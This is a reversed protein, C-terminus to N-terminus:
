PSVPLGSFATLTPDPEAADLSVDTTLPLRQDCVTM